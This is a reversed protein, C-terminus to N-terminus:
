MKWFLQGLINGIAIDYNRMRFLSITAAVEPLSTAVGLFIAGAIGAGLNLNIAIIDTIYTIIISLAIIGISVLVFRVVIQKVTLRCPESDEDESEPSEDTNLHRVAFFYIVIIIISTINLIFINLNLIGIKNLFIALYIGLLSFTIFDHAKSIKGQSFTKWTIFILIALITLNFINSGLINGMCLGPKDLMITSTISTFMEPLSTVASLLIGGIFAGSLNTTKELMDVYQSAKISLWVVGAAVIVYLVYIM